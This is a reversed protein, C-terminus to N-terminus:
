GHTEGALVVDDRTDFAQFVQKVGQPIPRSKHTELDVHVHVERIVARLDDGGMGHLEVLVAMSSTGFRETRAWADIMEDSKIPKRFDVEARAVHFDIPGAGNEGRFDVARWYETIGIDAYDLYRANFVVGQPDVESWRVRFRYAFRCDARSGSVSM